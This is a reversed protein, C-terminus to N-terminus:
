KKRRRKKKRRRPGLFTHRIFEEKNIHADIDCTDHAIIIIIITTTTTIIIIIIIIIINSFSYAYNRNVETNM